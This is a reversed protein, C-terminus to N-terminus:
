KFNKQLLNVSIQAAKTQSENSAGAIHPTIIVRRQKHLNLLKSKLNTGNIEGSLVDTSFFVDKRKNLFYILDKENIVEGRSTNILIAKKKLLKLKSLNILNYTDKNLSCCICVIKSKSFIFNISRKKINNNKKKIDCYSVKAGFIKLWKSLNSGIRGLGIIGVSKGYLEDGRLINENQRWRNNDVENIARDLRRISNLILLFTFESSARIQNLNKRDDLLSFVKIKKKKCSEIDIHNVGTSPTILIKLNPFFSLIKTDIKFSQGPNLIWSTIIFNKKKIDTKKWIENFKFIFKKSKFITKDIFTNPASFLCIDKKM